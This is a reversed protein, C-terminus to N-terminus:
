RRSVIASGDALQRAISRGANEVAPGVTELVVPPVGDELDLDVAIDPTGDDALRAVITVTYLRM